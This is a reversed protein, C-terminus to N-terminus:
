PAATQRMCFMFKDEPYWETDPRALAADLSLGEANYKLVFIRPKDDSSAIPKMAVYLKEHLPQDKYELRYHAAVEPSCLALGLQSGRGATYPASNGDYDADHQTGIIESTTAGDPFGLDAISLIVISVKM